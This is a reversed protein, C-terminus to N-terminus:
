QIKNTMELLVALREILRGKSVDDLCRYQTLLAIEEESLSLDCATKRDNLAVYGRLLFDVSLHYFDALKVLMTLDPENSATEYKTYTSVSIGLQKAVQSQTLNMSVRANRLNLNFAM